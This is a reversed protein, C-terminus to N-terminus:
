YRIRQENQKGEKQSITKNTSITIVEKMSKTIFAKVSINKETAINYLSEYDEKSFEIIM